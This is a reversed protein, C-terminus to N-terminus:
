EKAPRGSPLIASACERRRTMTVPTTSHLTAVHAHPNTCEKAASNTARINTPTPSAASAGAATDMIVSLKGGPWRAVAIPTNRAPMAIPPPAAITM